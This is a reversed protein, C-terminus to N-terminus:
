SSMPTMPGSKQHLGDCSDDERHGDHGEPPRHQQRGAGHGPERGADGQQEVHVDPQESVGLAQGDGVRHEGEGDLVTM